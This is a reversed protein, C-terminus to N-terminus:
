NKDPKVDVGNLPGVIKDKEFARKKDLIVGIPEDDQILYSNDPFNQSRFDRLNLRDIIYVRVFRSLQKWIKYKYKEYIENDSLKSLKLIELFEYSMKDQNRELNYVRQKLYKIDIELNENKEIYDKFFM